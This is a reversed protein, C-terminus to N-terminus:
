SASKDVVLALVNPLLQRDERTLSPGALALLLLAVAAARFWAGRPRLFALALLMLAGLIGLGALVDPRVLPSFGLALNM